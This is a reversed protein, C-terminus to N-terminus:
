QCTTAKLEERRNPQEPALFDSVWMGQNIGLLSSYLALSHPKLSWASSTQFDGPSLWAGRIVRELDKSM